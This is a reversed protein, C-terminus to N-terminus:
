VIPVTFVGCVKLVYGVVAVPITIEGAFFGIVVDWLTPIDKGFWSLIEGVSWGGVLLNIVLIIITVLCGAKM